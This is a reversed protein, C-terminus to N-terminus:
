CNGYYYDFSTSINYVKGCFEIRVRNYIILKKDFKM